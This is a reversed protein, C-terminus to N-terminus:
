SGVKIPTISKNLPERITMLYRAIAEIQVMSLEESWPPMASSRNLKLGGSFIIQKTYDISKYSQTLDYPKPNKIITGSLRGDGRGKKGHCASCRSIYLQRGDVLRGEKKTEVERLLNIASDTNSNLFNIFVALYYIEDSTLEDIWPPSYISMKGFVGGYRINEITSKLDNGYKRKLLNSHPYKVVLLTLSGDGMGERGHCLSCRDIFLEASLSLEKSSTQADLWLSFSMLLVGWLLAPKDM